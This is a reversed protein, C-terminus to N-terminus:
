SARPRAGRSSVRRLGWGLPAGTWWFPFRGSSARLTRGTGASRASTRTPLRPYGAFAGRPWAARREHWVVDGACWAPLRSGPMLTRRFESDAAALPVVGM